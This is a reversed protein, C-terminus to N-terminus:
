GAPPRTAVLSERGAHHEMLGVLKAHDGVPYADRFRMWELATCVAIEVVGFAKASSLWAGDVRADLWEMSARARGHHKAVYSAQEGTVGDKGLYFTNILADLAGDVVTIVNRAELDAPDFSALPGPGHTRMLHENIVESDFVTQDGLQATPIKWLPNLARMAAQGDDDATNILEHALGLEQAVIRVRRVYPSTVTGFLRM